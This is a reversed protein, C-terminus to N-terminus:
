SCPMNFCLKCAHFKSNAPPIYCAGPLVNRYMTNCNLELREDRSALDDVIHNNATAIPTVRTTGHHKLNGITNGGFVSLLIRHLQEADDPDDYAFPMAGLLLKRLFADSISSYMAGRVGLAALSLEVTKSKGRNVNGLAIHVGCSGYKAQIDEYVLSWVM